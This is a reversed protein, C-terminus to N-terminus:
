SGYISEHINSVALVQSRLDRRVVISTKIRLEHSTSSSTTTPLRKQSSPLAQSGGNYVELAGLTYKIIGPLTYHVVVRQKLGSYSM